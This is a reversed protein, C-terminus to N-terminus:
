VTTWSNLGDRPRATWSSLGALERERGDGGAADTASLAMDWGLQALAELLALQLAGDDYDAAAASRIDELLEDRTADVAMANIALYWAYDVASWSAEPSATLRSRVV